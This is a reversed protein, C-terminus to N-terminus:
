NTRSDSNSVNKLNELFTIFRQMDFSKNSISVSQLKSIFIDIWPETSFGHMQVLNGFTIEAMVNDLSDFIMKTQQDSEPFIIASIKRNAAEAFADADLQQSEEENGMDALLIAKLHMAPLYISAFDAQRALAIGKELLELGTHTEGAKAMAYGKRYLSNIGPYTMMIKESGLSYETIASRFDKLGLFIDGRVCYAESANEFYGKELSINLVMNALEWAKDYRGTHYFIRAQIIHALSSTRPNQLAESSKLCLKIEEEAVDFRGGYYAAMALCVHINSQATPHNILLYANLLGQHGTIKAKEPWGMLCYLVALQYQVSTVAQRIKITSLDKGLEIAKTYLQIAKENKLGTSLAIGLRSRAQIKEYLNDTKELIQISQELLVIAKEIELSFIAALAMGSLGAGTLLPDSTQQGTEYMATFNEDLARVDMVNYALDGWAYFLEYLSDLPIAQAEVIRISNAKNFANYAEHISYLTRAYQGAKVWYQFANVSKGASEYHRAISGAQRNIISSKQSSLADAIQEHLHCLRAPSLRSILSDRILSHNFAYQGPAGSSKIAHIFQKEELEELCHVLNVTDLIHIRSLVDFQFEMGYVAATYLLDRAQSTLNKEKEIFIHSLNDGVPFNENECDILDDFSTLIAHITEHIFLPNGATARYMRDLFSETPSQDTLKEILQAMEKRSLPGLAIRPWNKHDKNELLVSHIQPNKIETRSTIIFFGHEKFFSKQELFMFMELTDLDCWQVDDLVILMRKQRSCSLFLHYLANFLETRGERSSIEAESPSISTKRVIDPVLISLPKLWRTDLHEIDERAVENRIMRILPQLPLHADEEQCSAQALRPKEPLSDYFQQVLRTKGSGIEGTIMLFSGSFYERELKELEPKRGIFVNRTAARNHAGSPLIRDREEVSFRNNGDTTFKIFDPPEADLEQEYLVKLHSYFAQAEHIRGSNYLLSILRTQLSVNLADTELAKNMFLIARDVDGITSFHDALLELCKLRYYELTSAKEQMWNDFEHTNSIKVGSLFNPSRWLSVAKELDAILTESFVPVGISTDLIHRIPQICQLFDRIDTHVSDDNLWVRDHDTELIEAFPLQNRLKSLLERLQRRADTEKTEPWFRNLLDGRGVGEPQCALFYLLTRLQRRQIVLPKGNFLIAPPGLVLIELM